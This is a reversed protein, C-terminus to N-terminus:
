KKEEECHCYLESADEKKIQKNCRSCVELKNRSIIEETTQKLLDMVGQPIKDTTIRITKFDDESM